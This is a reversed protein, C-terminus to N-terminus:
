DDRVAVVVHRGGEDNEVPMPWFQHVGPEFREILNRALADLEVQMEPGQADRIEFM